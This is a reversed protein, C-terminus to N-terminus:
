TTATIAFRSGSRSILIRQRVSWASEVAVVVLAEGVREAGIVQEDAEHGGGAV